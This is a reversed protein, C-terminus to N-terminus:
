TSKAHDALNLLAKATERASSRDRLFSSVLDGIKVQTSVIGPRATEDVADDLSTRTRSFFGRVRIDLSVSEWADLHAPQGGGEFYLGAQCQASAVWRPYTSAADFNDCRETIAIGAGGLIGSYRSQQQLRPVNHFELPTPRFGATSYNIYGFLMPSYVFESTKTALEELVEIPNATLCREPLLSAIRAMLELVSQITDITAIQDDGPWPNDSQAMLSLFSCSADIPALPWLLYGHRALDEVDQWTSPQARQTDPRAVAVHSAADIALAWQHGGYQYSDHSHGVSRRALERLEALDVLDDFPRIVGTSAAEGVHPHDIVVLDYDRALADVASEGFDRLSRVDWEIRTGTTREFEAATALLPGSGRPHDWTIGSISNSRAM